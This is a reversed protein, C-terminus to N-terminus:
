YELMFHKMNDNNTGEAPYRIDNEDYDCLSLKTSDILTRTIDM